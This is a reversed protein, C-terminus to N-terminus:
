GEEFFYLAVAKGKLDALKYSGEGAWGTGNLEPAIDGIGAANVAGALALMGAMGFLTARCRHGM